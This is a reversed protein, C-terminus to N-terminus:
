IAIATGNDVKGLVKSYRLCLSSASNAKVQGYAVLRDRNFTILEEGVHGYFGEELYFGQGYNGRTRYNKLPYHQKYNHLSVENFTVILMEGPIVSYFQLLNVKEFRWEL